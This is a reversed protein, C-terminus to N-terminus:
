AQGLELYAFLPDSRRFRIQFGILKYFRLSVELDGVTLEPVLPNWYPEDHLIAFEM